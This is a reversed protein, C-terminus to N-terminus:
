SGEGDGETSIVQVDLSSNAAIEMVRHGYTELTVGESHAPFLFGGVMLDDDTKNKVSLTTLGQM